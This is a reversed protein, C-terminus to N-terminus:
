MHDNGEYLVRQNNLNYSTSSILMFLITAPLLGTFSITSSEGMNHVVVMLLLCIWLCGWDFDNILIKCAKRCCHILFMSFLIIGIFGINLIIDLYGNHAHSSTAERHVDTWFGGFGHGLVAKQMAHPVLYAWIDSRGTLTENRNLTPAVNSLMSLSSFPTITGFVIIIAIVVTLTNAGILINQKKMWLFGVLAMLGIILTAASTASYTVTHQPGMFLWISLMLIFVEVYTQYWAAFTDYGRRRRIFAWILFFISFLCLLALGNKQSSVGVWMLAGSWRGYERGYEPFYHILIFSFPVLIYITRRFISQLAQRQDTETAVVFAMVVAILERTWRKFSIYPMDSWIISVLMFSLLLMVWSNKMIANTWRFPRKILILLGLCLIGILVNRDLISGEQMDVGSTGFWIGLPKIVNLLMWITPIWLVFSAEPYQKRELLLLFLVFITCILLAFAPPM